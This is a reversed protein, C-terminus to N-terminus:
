LYIVNTLVIQRYGCDAKVWLGGKGVIRTRGNAPTLTRSIHHGRLLWHPPHKPNLFDKHLRLLSILGSSPQFRAM